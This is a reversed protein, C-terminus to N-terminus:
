SKALVLVEDSVTAKSTIPEVRQTSITLPLSLVQNVETKAAEVMPDTKSVSVLYDRVKRKPKFLIQHLLPNKPPNKSIKKITEITKAVTAM